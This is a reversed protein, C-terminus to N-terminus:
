PTKLAEGDFCGLPLHPADPLDAEVNRLPAYLYGALCILTGAICTFVFMLGMGAGPGTGVLWGFTGALSGGARM